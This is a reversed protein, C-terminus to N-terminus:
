VALSVRDFVVFLAPVAFCAHYTTEGELIHGLISVTFLCQGFINKRYARFWGSTGYILPNWTPKATYWLIMEVRETGNRVVASVLGEGRWRGSKQDEKTSNPKDIARDKPLNLWTTM